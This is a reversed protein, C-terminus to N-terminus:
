PRADIVTGKFFFKGAQPTNVWNTGDYHYITLKGNFQLTIKDEGDLGGTVVVPSLDANDDDTYVELYDAAEGAESYIYSMNSNEPVLSWNSYQPFEDPGLTNTSPTSLEIAIYYTANTFEDLDWGDAGENLTGDTIMFDRYTYATNGNYNGERTLYIKNAKLSYKV